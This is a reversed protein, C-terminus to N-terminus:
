ATFAVNVRWIVFAFRVVAALVVRCVLPVYGATACGCLDLVTADMWRYPFTNNRFGALDANQRFSVSQVGPDRRGGIGGAGYVGVVVLRLCRM